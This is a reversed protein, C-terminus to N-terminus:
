TDSNRTMWILSDHGVLASDLCRRRDGESQFVCVWCLEQSADTDVLVALRGTRELSHLYSRRPPTPAVFWVYPICMCVAVSAFELATTLAFDALLLPPAMVIADMRGMVRWLKSYLAPELPESTAQVGHRGYADNTLLMPGDSPWHKSVMVNGAWPDLVLRFAALNLASLLLEMLRGPTQLQLHKPKKRQFWGHILGVTQPSHQGPMVARLRAAVDAPTRVSWTPWETDPGIALVTVPDPPQMIDAPADNEPIVELRALIRSDHETMTGDTWYINFWKLSSEDTFVVRGIRVSARTTHKVVKGHWEAALKRALARRRPNPLEIAPRSREVPIYRERRRQVDTPTVGFQVCTPCIWTGAPIDSLPPTLCFTHYGLNCGDCLLMRGSRRHDGCIECPYRGSPLVADPHVTGEINTLHCQACQEMHRVLRQGAQNELLLTGNDRVEVVRLVEDRVQMGLAGGPIQDEPHLPFVYDGVEFMSVKPKYLGSRLARFRAANKAHAERLNVAVQASLKQAIEARRLLEEGSAEVDVFNMRKRRTIWSDAHVAPNQAFLIQAPSLKTAAQRTCRYGLLISSLGVTDWTKAHRVDAAHKKLAYKITKVAREALGNSRPLGPTIFHLDIGKDKCFREFVGRFPPGNDSVFEAPVGYRAILETLIIRVTTAGDATCVPFVEIWKSYYDIAVLAFRHGQASPSLPGLYDLGWRCFMGYDSHPQTQMESTEHGPAVRVRQCLKCTSLCRRVDVTLGHWWYMQSVADITRKEGVHGLEAHLRLVTRERHEPRPVIRLAMRETLRDKVLRYLHGDVWRYYPVRKRLRNAEKSDDPWVGDRLVRLAADDVWIDNSEQNPQTVPLALAPMTDDTIEQAVCTSFCGTCHRSREHIDNGPAAVGQSAMLNAVLYLAQIARVDMAQGLMRNRCFDAVGPAATGGVDYGLAAEREEPNPEDWAQAGEDFLSGPKGPRFARSLPFSMLTPFVRRPKGPQNVQIGSHSCEGEKVATPIRGPGLIEALPGDPYAHIGAFVDDARKGDCLNTWYNRLRHARSGVQVADFTVPHGIRTLLDAFVPNRIHEHRFNCQMAVNELIYGPPYWQQKEQIYRVVRLVDDLLAARTGLKANGAPSYDQCPWGAVILFQRQDKGGSSFQLTDQLSENTVRRLDQPLDFAHKWATVPFQDPFKATLERLRFEAVRRSQQDNDVYYYENVTVGLKLLAELGTSIGACLEILSLGREKVCPFFSPGVVRTDLAHSYLTPSGASPVAWRDSGKRQALAESAAKKLQAVIPHAAKAVVTMLRKREQVLEPHLEDVTPDRMAADMYYHGGVHPVNRHFLDSFRPAYTDIARQPIGAFCQAPNCSMALVVPDLRAGSRDEDSPKPFRSLVDANQHKVGARHEIDFDHEQLLMQWRAYQGNLDRAKMIWLLPQHDTVLRFRTGQVHQRFMRVAWALALLEGKYSPYNREHKNLSRSIAACLYENGDDDQQGLVAGIGHVSWDTHLILPRNPDVPRLVCGPKTMEHKLTAYAARQTEGWKWPTEKRLLETLPSAIASFGPIFHRYYTLFGLISRLEPVNRPDPLTKIAEVKAENMTIGHTGVVNHGLYEVINTGFVSKDPHIKLNVEALTTLVRRVHEVHEEYTDSVIILDDIYAFAFETCGGRQLERDMVRQFKAPANKLGFPMRQYALLQPPQGADSVYWFATKAISDKHVPIQHFGSRLDLATMYKGRVVRDFLYDARHSGYRDLETHKNIRIYNVCFRKDSWTGDPARKMALVPNSSYDSFTLRCVVNHELLEECKSRIIELEPKSWHRRANETLGATTDLDITLPPEGGTYGTIQSMEYAVASPAVERLMDRMMNFQKDTLGPIRDISLKSVDDKVYRSPDLRGTEGHPLHSNIGHSFQEALRDGQYPVKKLAELEDRFRGANDAALYNTEGAVSMVQQIGRLTTTPLALVPVVLSCALLLVLLTPLWSFLQTLYRCTLTGWKARYLISRHNRWSVPATVVIDGPQPGDCQTTPPSRRDISVGELDGLAARTELQEVMSAFLGSMKRKLAEGDSPNTNAVTRGASQRHLRRRLREARRARGVRARASGQSRKLGHAAAQPRDSERTLRKSVMRCRTYQARSAFAGAWDPQCLPQWSSLQRRAAQYCAAARSVLGLAAAVVPFRCFAEVLILLTVAVFATGICPLCRGGIMMVWQAVPYLTASLFVAQVVAAVDREACMM